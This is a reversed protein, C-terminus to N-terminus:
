LQDGHICAVANDPQAKRGFGREARGAPGEDIASLRALKPVDRQPDEAPRSWRGM